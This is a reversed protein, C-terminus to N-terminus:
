QDSIGRFFAFLYVREVGTSKLLYAVTSATAGTTLLDDVVLVTKGKLKEAFRSSLKYVNKVLKKREEIGVARSLPKRWKLSRKILKEYPQNAGKLMEEVPDFGRWFWYRWPNTPIFTVFDPGISDIYEKLFFAAKSGVKPALHKIGKFKILKVIERIEGTYHSFTKYGDLYNVVIPNIDPQPKISDLCRNCVFREGRLPSSCLYCCQDFISPKLFSLFKM